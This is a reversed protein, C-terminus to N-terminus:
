CHKASNSEKDPPELLWQKSSHLRLQLSSVLITSNGFGNAIKQPYIPRIHFLGFHPPYM